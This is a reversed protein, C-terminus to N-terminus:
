QKGCLAILKITNQTTQEIKKNKIKAENKRKRKRMELNGSEITRITYVKDLSSKFAGAAKPYISWLLLKIKKLEHPSFVSSFIRSYAKVFCISSVTKQTCHM